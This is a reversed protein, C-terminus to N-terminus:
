INLEYSFVNYVSIDDDFITSMVVFTIFLFAMIMM